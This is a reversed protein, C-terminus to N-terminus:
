GRWDGNTNYISLGLSIKLSKKNECLFIDRRNSVWKIQSTLHEWKLREMTAEILSHSSLLLFLDVAMAYIYKKKRITMVYKYSPPENM